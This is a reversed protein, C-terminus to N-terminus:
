LSKACHDSLRYSSSLDIARAPFLVIMSGLSFMTISVQNWTIEFDFFGASPYMETFLKM